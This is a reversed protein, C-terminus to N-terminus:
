VELTSAWGSGNRRPHCVSMQAEVSFITGLEGERALKLAQQLLPNYRYMYGLQLPREHAKM